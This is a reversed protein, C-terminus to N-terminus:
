RFIETPQEGRAELGRTVPVFGVAMGDQQTDWKRQTTM